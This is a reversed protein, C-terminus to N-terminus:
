IVQFINFPLHVASCVNFMSNITVPCNGYSMGTNSYLNAIIILSKEFGIYIYIYM